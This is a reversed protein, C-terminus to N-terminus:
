NLPSGAGPGPGPTAGPGTGTDGGGAAAILLSTRWADYAGPAHPVAVAGGLRDASPVVDDLLSVWRDVVHTHEPATTAHMRIRVTGSALTLQEVVHPAVLWLSTPGAEHEEACLQEIREVHEATRLCLDIRHESTGNSWRTFATLTGNLLTVRDGALTRLSTTRLSFDEVVGTVSPTHVTIMDGVAFQGEFLLLAGAIVDGLLRQFGFGVLVVVLSAGFFASTRGGTAISLAVVIAAGYVAYRILSELLTVLTRQRQVRSLAATDTVDVPRRELRGWYARRVVRVFVREALVAVALVGVIIVANVVWDDRLWELQEPLSVGSLAAVSTAAGM